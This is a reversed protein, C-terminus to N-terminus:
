IKQSNLLSQIVSGQSFQVELALKLLLQTVLDQSFLAKLALLLTIKKHGWGILFQSIHLPDGICEFVSSKKAIVSAKRIPIHVPTPSTYGIGAKCSTVSFGKAKLVKHEEKRFAKAILM